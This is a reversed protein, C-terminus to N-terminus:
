DINLYKHTQISLRWNREIAVAIALDLGKKLQSIPQLCMSKNSLDIGELANDLIDIHKQSAVVHKIENARILADKRVTLGGPMNFKPSVTVWSQEHCRVEATGSTEIQTQYGAAQLETTLSTLDYDCPEGGTIVVLKARYRETDFRAILEETTMPAWRGVINDTGIIDDSNVEHRDELAWTHKTDCWVCGVNCGQLRIFIAPLGTNIGEGQITEFLENVPYLISM